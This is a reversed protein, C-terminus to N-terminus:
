DGNVIGPVVARFEIFDGHLIMKRLRYFIVVVNMRYNRLVLSGRRSHIVIEVRRADFRRGAIRARVTGFLLTPWNDLRAARRRLSGGCLLRLFGAPLVFILVPRSISKWWDTLRRARSNARRKQKQLKM